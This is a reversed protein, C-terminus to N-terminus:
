GAALRPSRHCDFWWAWPVMVIGAILGPWAIEGVSTPPTGFIDGVYTVLLLVVYALFSGDLVADWIAVALGFEGGHSRCFQCLRFLQGKSFDLM